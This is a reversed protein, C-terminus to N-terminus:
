PTKGQGCVRTMLRHGCCRRHQESRNQEAWSLSAKAAHHLISSFSSFPHLYHVSPHYILSTQNLLSPALHDSLASNFPAFLTLIPSSLHIPTMLTFYTSISLLSRLIFIHQHLFRPYCLLILAYPFLDFRGGFSLM